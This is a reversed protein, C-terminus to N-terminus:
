LLRQYLQQREARANRLEEAKTFDSNARDEEGIARYCKGRLDYIAAIEDEIGGNPGDVAKTFDEIAKEYEKRDYYICGRMKYPYYFAANPSSEVDAMLDIAKNCKKLARDFDRKRRHADGLNCYVRAKNPVDHKIAWNYDSIAGDYDGTRIRSFGRETYFLIFAPDLAIAQTLDEVARQYDETIRYSVGREYYLMANTPDLEIAENYYRISADYKDKSDTLHGEFQRYMGKRLNIFTEYHRDQHKIYGHIDNYISQLSIGYYERLHALMPVKLDKRIKIPEDYKCKEIFGDPPQVFISNQAIVRNEPTKPRKIWDRTTEDQKLLIVRGDKKPKGYCAFFLAVLYDTTFDILSTKAGYHQLQAELEFDGATDRAHRRAEVLFLQRVDKVDPITITVGKERQLSRWLGSSVETYCKPEGRYIYSGDSSKEVLENIIGMIERQTYEEMNEPMVVTADKWFDADTPPDDPDSLAAKEIDEDTLVDVREWDTEDPLADLESRTYTVDTNQEKM